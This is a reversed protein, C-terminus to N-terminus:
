IDINIAQDNRRRRRRKTSVTSETDIDHQSNLNQLIDDINSPGRMTRSPNAPESRPGPAHGHTNRFKNQQSRADSAVNIGQSMMNFMPNNPRAGMNNGMTNLTAQSLNRMLEPNQRLVEDLGPANNKFLTNTLHFMFASGGVMFLLKLEPAMNISDSYKDHLEEFVDDYDTINEMQSESWGNLKLDLPDFKRNLYEVGSTFGMLFKRYLKISKEVDRQRKVKNYEYRIDDLNSALTYKRSIRYGQKELRDLKYLLDQKEALIEEYTKPIEEISTLSDESGLNSVSDAPFNINELNPNDNDDDDDEGGSLNLDPSINHHQEESGTSNTRKRPNALYELGNLPTSKTNPTYGLIPSNSALNSSTNDKVVRIVNNFGNPNSNITVENQPDKEVSVNM